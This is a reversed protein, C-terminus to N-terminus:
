AFNFGRFGTRNYKTGDWENKSQPNLSGKEDPEGKNQLM